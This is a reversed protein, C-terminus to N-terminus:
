ASLQVQDSPWWRRPDPSASHSRLVSFRMNKGDLEVYCVLLQRINVALKIGQHVPKDEVVHTEGSPHDVENAHHSALDGHGAVVDGLRIILLRYFVKPEIGVGGAPSCDFLLFLVHLSEFFEFVIKMRVEDFQVM